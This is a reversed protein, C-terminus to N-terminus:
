FGLARRLAEPDDIGVVVDFSRRLDLRVCTEKRGAAVFLRKGGAGSFWGLGFGPLGIGGMRWGLRLRAQDRSAGVIDAYAVRIQFLGAGVRLADPSLTVTANKMHWLVLVLLAASLALAGLRAGGELLLGSAALIGGFVVVLSVVSTRNFAAIKFRISDNM